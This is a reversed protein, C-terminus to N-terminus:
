SQNQPLLYPTQVYHGPSTQQLSNQQIRFSAKTHAEIPSIQWRIPKAAINNIIRETTVPRTANTIQKTTTIPRKTTSLPKWSIYYTANKNKMKMTPRTTTLRYVNNSRNNQIIPSNNMKIESNSNKWESEKTQAILHSGFLTLLLIKLYFSM